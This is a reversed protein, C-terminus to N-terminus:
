EEHYGWVVTVTNPKWANSWGSPRAEAECYITTLNSCNTFNGFGMTTVSKPIVISTLATCGYFNYDGMSTLKKSLKVTQLATCTRFTEKGISLVSDPLEISTLGSCGYFAGDEITTLGKHLTVNTIATCGRFSEKGITTVNRPIDISTAGYFKSGTFAREGITTVNKGISLGRVNTFNTFAYNGISTIPYPNGQYYIYDPIYLYAWDVNGAYGVCEMTLDTKLRYHFSGNIIPKGYEGLGYYVPRGNIYSSSWGGSGVPGEFYIVIGTCSM